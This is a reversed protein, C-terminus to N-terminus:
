PFDGTLLRTYTYALLRGATVAAAWVAISSGALLKDRTSVPGQDKEPWALVKDRIWKTEVLAFAILGLKLYFLPNTLAKTPYGILLLLGSILNVVFALKMVVFFKELLSLPVRPAFGLVRLDIAINSGVLFGMGVTHLILIFPFAWLSPSERIWVSLASTEMWSFFADPMVRIM